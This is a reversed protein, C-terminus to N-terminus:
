VKLLTEIVLKTDDPNRVQICDVWFEKVPYDNWGPFIADWVFLIEEKKLWLNEMIKKIGYAKDLWKRTVDISTTGAIWISYDKLYNKVYDVIKQRIKKDPDFKKKEELPAKQGLGSYTVQSWRNELIEWWVKEPILNLEKLAKNFVDFIYSVEDDSLFEAYKRVYKGEDFYFMQTWITPFLFFNSFNTTDPMKDVIQEKINEFSWGTIVAVKYKRILKSLLNAMNEDIKCKAKTITDDKDFVVIKKM